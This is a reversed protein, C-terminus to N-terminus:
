VSFILLLIVGVLSLVSNGDFFLQFRFGRFAVIFGMDPIRWSCSCHTGEAAASATHVLLQCFVSTSTPQCYLPAADSPFPLVVGDLPEKAVLMM